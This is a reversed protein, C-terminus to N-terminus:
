ETIKAGLADGITASLVEGEKLYEHETISEHVAQIHLTTLELKWM